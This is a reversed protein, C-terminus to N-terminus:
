EHPHSAAFTNAPSWAALELWKPGPMLGEIKRTAPDYGWIGRNTLTFIPVRHRDALLRDNTTPKAPGANPHTHFVAEIRPNWAFTATRYTNRVPVLRAGLSGDPKREILVVEERNSTGSGALRWASQLVGIAIRDLRSTDFVEASPGSGPLPLALAGALVTVLISHKM